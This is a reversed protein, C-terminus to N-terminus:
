NEGKTYGIYQTFTEDPYKEKLYREMPYIKSERRWYCMSDKTPIGRVMGKRKAVEKEITGYAWHEFTSKPTLVTIEKNYREKFYKKIKEGYEYMEDFEELTDCFIIEDLPYNNKLLLDCMATSDKGFSITAIYKM